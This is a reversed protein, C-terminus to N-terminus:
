RLSGKAQLARLLRDLAALLDHSLSDMYAELEPGPAGYRRLQRGELEMVNERLSACRSWIDSVADRSATTLKLDCRATELRKRIRATERSLARRQPQSLNNREEYLVGKRERGGAWDEVLCLVEDLLALTTGIGHRHNEALSLLAKDANAM